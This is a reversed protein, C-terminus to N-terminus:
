AVTQWWGDVAPPDDADVWEGPRPVALRVDRAKAERWLRNVPEDWPHLALNFTGWHVPILLDGRLDLHAAVAEEPFMHIDPWAADYAGIQMLTADFPGHTAGIEAYGDFYGSDGTYFVRRHRGAIVWSAWLTRDRRLGRGSFHRAATPTLELGAVPMTEDWDLEIIRDAPVDWRELHAGVGLPVLFPASQGRTLGRVTAMDLHDYHDHSILIADVPPLEDLPVPPPHLRRPGVLRSPSCRDSWVPDVLVRRGEIEILASAHGYWLIGLGEPRPGTAPRRVPVATGPRRRRRDGFLLERLLSRDDAGVVTRTGVPNRFAGGRFQPSRAVRGARTGTARGGFAAPVDRVAWAAVGLAAM